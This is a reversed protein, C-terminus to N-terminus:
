RPGLGTLATAEPEMWETLEESSCPWKDTMQSSFPGDKGEQERGPLYHCHTEVGDAASMMLLPSTSNEWGMVKNNIMHSKRIEGELHCM